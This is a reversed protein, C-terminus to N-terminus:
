PNLLVAPNAVQRIYQTPSFGTERKFASSFYNQNSFALQASVEAVPMGNRLMRIASAIKLKLLYKHVGIDSYRAFTRNIHAPSCHLKEAIEETTIWSELHANLEAVIARYTQAETSDTVAKRALAKPHSTLSLLFSELDNVFIHILATSEEWHELMQKLLHRKGRPLFSYLHEQLALIKEQQLASLSYAGSELASLLAGRACFGVIFARSDTGEVSWVRHFEMPKYLILDGEQLTYIDENIAVQLKGESVYLMEWFPHFEGPFYYPHCFTADMCEDLATIELVPQFPVHIKM